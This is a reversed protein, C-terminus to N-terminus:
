VYNSIGRLKIKLGSEHYRSVHHKLFWIESRVSEIFIIKQAMTSLTKECILSPYLNIWQYLLFWFYILSKIKNILVKLKFILTKRGSQGYLGSRNKEQFLSGYDYKPWGWKTDLIWETVNYLRNESFSLSLYIRFVIILCKFVLNWKM